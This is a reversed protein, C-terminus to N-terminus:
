KVKAKLMYKTYSLSPKVGVVVFDASTEDVNKTKTYKVESTLWILSGKQLPFENNEAIVVGDYDSSDFGYEQEQAEGGSFAINARFEVPTSYTTEYSGTELPIKTGDTDTYYKINGDKDTEYVPAKDGQLSYKMKQKNIDLM